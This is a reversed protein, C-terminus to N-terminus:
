PLPSHLPRRRGQHCEEGGGGSLCTAAVPPPPARPARLRWGRLLSLRCTTAIVTTNSTAAVSCPLPSPLQRCSRRHREDGGGLLYLRQCPATAAVRRTPPGCGGAPSGRGGGAAASRAAAYARRGRLLARVDLAGGLQAAGAGYRHASFAAHAALM